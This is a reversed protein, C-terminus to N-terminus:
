KSESCLSWPDSNAKQQETKKIYFIGLMKEWREHVNIQLSYIMQKVSQGEIQVQRIIEETRSEPEAEQGTVVMGPAIDPHRM